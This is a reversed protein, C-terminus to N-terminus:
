SSIAVSIKKYEADLRVHVHIIRLCGPVGAQGQRGENESSCGRSSEGTPESQVWLPRASISECLASLSPSLPIQLQSQAYSWAEPLSRNGQSTPM